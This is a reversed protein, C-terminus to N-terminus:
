RYCYGQCYGYRHSYGYCYGHGCGCYCGRGYCCGYCCSCGFWSRVQVIVRVVVRAGFMVKVRIPLDPDPFSVGCIRLHLSSHQFPITTLLQSVGNQRCTAQLPCLAQYSRTLTLYGPATSSLLIYHLPSVHPHWLPLPLPFTPMNAYGHTFHVRADALADSISLLLMLTLTFSIM